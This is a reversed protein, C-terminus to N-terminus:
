SIFEVLAFVMSVNLEVPTHFLKVQTPHIGMFADGVLSRLPAVELQM